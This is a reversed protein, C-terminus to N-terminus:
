IYGVRKVTVHTFGQKMKEKCADIGAKKHQTKSTYGNMIVTENKWYNDKPDFYHLRVEYSESM